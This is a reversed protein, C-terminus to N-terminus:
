ERALEKDRGDFRRLRVRDEFHLSSECERLADVCQTFAARDFGPHVVLGRLSEIADASPPIKTRAAVALARAVLESSELASASALLTRVYRDVFDRGLPERLALAEAIRRELLEFPGLAAAHRGAAVSQEADALLVDDPRITGTQGGEEAIERGPAFRERRTIAGTRARVRGSGIIEIEQDGIALLDGAELRMRGVLAAGNVLVGNRSKVDEAEVADESVYITVHRRSVMHDDLKLDNAEGRGIKFEGIPLPIVHQGYRLKFKSM